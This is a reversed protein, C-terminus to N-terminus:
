RVGGTIRMLVATLVAGGICRAKDSITFCNLREGARPDIDGVKMGRRVTFGDRILGRLVGSIAATLPAGDVDALFAGQSVLDGINAATRIIGDAPARLLREASRGAIDGPAGTNPMASGNLILRGLDHGRMTEIVIDVDDPARFGPGLGVTVPAMWKGTGCNRKAIIADVVAAPHLERICDAAEDVLVPIKGGSLLRPAEDPSGCLVADMDEVTCSGQYVAESLCVARRISSPRACETVVVGFGGRRLAQVTGTAIDGGGRVIIIERM